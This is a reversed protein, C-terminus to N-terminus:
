SAGRRLAAEGTGPGRPSRGKGERTARRVARERASHLSLRLEEDKNRRADALSLSLSLQSRPLQTRDPPLVLSITPDMALALVCHRELGGWPGTARRPSRPPGDPNASQTCRGAFRAPSHSLALCLPAAGSHSHEYSTATDMCMRRLSFPCSLCALPQAPLRSRVRPHLLSRPCTPARRLLCSGARACVLVGMSSQLRTLGGSVPCRGYLSRSLRRVTPASSTQPRRPQTTTSQRRVAVLQPARGSGDSWVSHRQLPPRPQLFRRPHPPPRAQALHPRVARAAPDASACHSATLMRDPLQGGACTTSRALQLHVVERRVESTWGQGRRGCWLGGHWM